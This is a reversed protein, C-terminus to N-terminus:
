KPVYVEADECGSKPSTLQRDGMKSNM